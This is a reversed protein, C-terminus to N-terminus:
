SGDAKDAAGGASPLSAGGAFVPGAGKERGGGSSLTSAIAPFSAGIM